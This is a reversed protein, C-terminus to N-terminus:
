RPSSTSNRLSFLSTATNRIIVNDLTYDLATAIGNDRGVILMNQDSWGAFAASSSAEAAPDSDGTGVHLSRIPTASNYRFEVWYWTDASLTTTGELWTESGGQNWTIEIHGNALLKILILNTADANKIKLLNTGISDNTHVRVWFGIAGANGDALDESSITFYTREYGDNIRLAHTGVKYNTTDITPTESATGGLANPYDVGLGGLTDIDNNEFGWFFLISTDGSATVPVGGGDVVQYGFGAFCPTTFLILWAILLLTKM